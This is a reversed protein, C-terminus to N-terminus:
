RGFVYEITGGPVWGATLGATSLQRIVSASLIWSGAPNWKVGGVATFRQVAEDMASLRIISVLPQGPASSKTEVFRGTSGAYRGSLEGILTVRPTAIVTVAGGYILDSSSTGFLYSVSGDVAVHTQEFSWVFGPQLTTEGTGLLDEERGTPLTLAGTIAGSSSALRLLNYKVRLAIDGIGSTTAQGASVLARKGRYTDFREGDLTLRIIPLVASVDVNDSLGYTGLFTTVDADFRLSISEVDFPEADHEMQSATSLLTGDDLAKGDFETFSMHRYGIDILGRGKGATLSRETFFGGFSASSRVAAGGLQNDLRFAFGAASTSAPLMSFSTALSGSIAASATAAALTDAGTDGTVISQPTLLFELVDQVTEQAAAHRPLALALAFTAAAAVRM